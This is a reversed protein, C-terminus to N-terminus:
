CLKAQAANHKAPTGFNIELIIKDPIDRALSEQSLVEPRMRCKQDLIGPQFRVLNYRTMRYSRKPPAPVM